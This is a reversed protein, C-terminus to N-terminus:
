RWSGFDPPFYLIIASANEEPHIRKAQNVLSNCGEQPKEADLVTKSIGVDDITRWVGETCLIIYGDRPVPRAFVMIQEQEEESAVGGVSSVLGQDDEGERWGNVTIMEIHHRDLHYAKSKGRHGLIIIEAFILGATLSFEVGPNGEEIAEATAKMADAVMEQLSGTEEYSELEFLDLLATQIIQRSFTTLAIQSIGSGKEDTDESDAICALGFDPLVKLGDSNGVLLYLSDGNVDEVGASYRAYGTSVHRRGEGALARALAAADLPRTPQESFTRRSEEPFLKAYLAKLLRHLFSM